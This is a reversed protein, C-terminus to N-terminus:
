PFVNNRNALIYTDAIIKCEGSVPTLNASVINSWPNYENEYANTLKLNYFIPIYIYASLYISIPAAVAGWMVMSDFIYAEAPIGIMSVSSIFSAFLSFAVPIVGMEGGALLVEKTSQKYRSKFANYIGISLSILLTVVFIVYDLTSFENRQYLTSKM